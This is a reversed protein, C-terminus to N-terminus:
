AWRTGLNLILLLWIEEGGQRRCPPLPVLKVKVLNCPTVVWLGVTWISVAMSVEVETM